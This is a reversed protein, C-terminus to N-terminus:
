QLGALAAPPLEEVRTADWPQEWGALALLRDLLGATFGWVVMGRVGFAPGMWGSPHRVTWRNAPDTLEAVPVRHAAAVEVPDVASVPSPTRWWGLVPTVVFGSPPLWLRPLTAVVEVGTPDLGTEEAAERLAAASPTPTAPTSRGM